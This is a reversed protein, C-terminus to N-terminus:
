VGEHALSALPADADFLPAFDHDQIARVERGLALPPRKIHGEPVLKWVAAIGCAIAFLTKLNM